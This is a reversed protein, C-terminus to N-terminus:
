SPTIRPSMPFAETEQLELYFNPSSIFNYIYLKYSSEMLITHCTTQLLTLAWHGVYWKPEYCKQWLGEM